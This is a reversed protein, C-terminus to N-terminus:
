GFEDANDLRTKENYKPSVFATLVAMSGLSVLISSALDTGIKVYCFIGLGIGIVIGLSLPIWYRLSYSVELTELNLQEELSLIWFSLTVPGIFYLCVMIIITLWSADTMLGLTMAVLGLIVAFWSGVLDVKKVRRLFACDNCKGRM